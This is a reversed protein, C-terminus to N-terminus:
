LKGGSGVASRLVPRSLALLILAIMLVRMALLLWERIQRRTNLKPDVRHFFMLTSFVITRKKQKLILHFLIPLGALPLLYLFTTASFIM